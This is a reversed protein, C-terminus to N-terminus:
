GINTICTGESCFDTAGCDSQTRCPGGTPSIGCVRNICSGSVCDSGVGCASGGSGIDCVGAACANSRCDANRACGSGTAAKCLGDNTSCFGSCCDLDSICLGSPPACCVGLADQVVASCGPPVASSAVPVCFNAPASPPSGPAQGPPCFTQCLQGNVVVSQPGCQAVCQGNDVFPTTQPCVSVAVCVGGQVTPKDAPCFASCRGEVLVPLTQFIGTGCPVCDGNPTVVPLIDGPVQGSRASGAPCACASPAGPDPVFTAAKVEFALSGAIARKMLGLMLVERGQGNYASRVKDDDKSLGYDVSIGAIAAARTAPLSYTEVAFASIFERVPLDSHGNANEADDFYKWWRYAIELIESLQPYHLVLNEERFNQAWTLNAFREWLAHGYGLTGLTHHPQGADGIAHLVWGLGRAGGRDDGPDKFQRWGYEALNQVPDFEVHGVGSSAWDSPLRPGIRGDEFTTYNSVGDSFDPALTYGTADTLAIFGVDLSDYGGAIQAATGRYGPLINFDGQGSDTTGPPASPSQSVSAFHWLGATPVGFVSDLRDGLRVLSQEEIEFVVDDAFAVPDLAHAPSSAQDIADNWCDGGSLLDFACAFPAFVVTLAADAIEVAVAKVTSIFLLNTPRIFLQTDNSADDPGTGWEGLVVGTYNEPLDQFFPVVGSAPAGDAGTAPNQDAGGFVYGRRVFCENPNSAFGRRPPFSIEKALCKGLNGPALNPPFIGGCDPAKPGPDRLNSRVNGLRDPAAMAETIFQKWRTGEACAGGPCTAPPCVSAPCAFLPPFSGGPNLAAAEVSYFAGRRLLNLIQYAQDAHRIHESNDYAEVERAGGLVGLLIAAGALATAVRRRTSTENVKGDGKARAMETERTMTKTATRM